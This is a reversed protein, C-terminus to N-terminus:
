LSAQPAPCAERSNNSSVTAAPLQPDPRLDAPSRTVWLRACPIRSAGFGPPCGSLRHRPSVLRKEAGVLRASAPPSNGLPGVAM